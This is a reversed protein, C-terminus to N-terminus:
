RSSAGSSPVRRLEWADRHDPKNRRAVDVVFVAAREARREPEPRPRCAIEEPMAPPEIDDMRGRERVEGEQPGADDAPPM